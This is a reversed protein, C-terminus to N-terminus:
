WGEEDGDEEEIVDLSTVTFVQQGEMEEESEDEYSECYQPNFVEAARISPKGRNLRKCCWYHGPSKDCTTGENGDREIDEEQIMYCPICGRDKVFPYVNEVSKGSIATFKAEKLFYSLCRVAIETAYRTGFFVARGGRLPCLESIYQGLTRMFGVDLGLDRAESDDVYVAPYFFPTEHLSRLAAQYGFLRARIYAWFQPSDARMNWCKQSYFGQRVWVIPRGEPTSGSVSVFDSYVLEIFM